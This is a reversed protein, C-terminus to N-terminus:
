KWPVGVAERETTSVLWEANQFAAIGRRHLPHLCTLFVHTIQDAKVNAREELRPLLIQPPLSPDVLIRTNGLTILTTTAHAPRVDGREGWLPHAALAGISIVRFSVSM